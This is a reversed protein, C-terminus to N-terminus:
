HGEKVINYNSNQYIKPAEIKKKKKRKERKEDYNIGVLKM